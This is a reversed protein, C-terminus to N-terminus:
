RHSDLVKAYHAAVEEPTLAREFWAFESRSTAEKGDVYLRPFKALPGDGGAWVYVIHRWVGGILVWDELTGPSTRPFGPLPYTV